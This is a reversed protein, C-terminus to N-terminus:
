LFLFLIKCLGKMMPTKNNEDSLSPFLFLSTTHRAWLWLPLEFTTFCSGSGLESGLARVSSVTQGGAKLLKGELGAVPSASSGSESSEARSGKPLPELRKTPMESVQLKAWASPFEACLESLLHCIGRSQIGSSPICHFNFPMEPLTIPSSNNKSGAYSSSEATFSGQSTTLPRDSNSNVWFGPRSARSCSFSPNHCSLSLPALISSHTAM